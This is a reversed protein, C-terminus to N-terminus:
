QGINVVIGEVSNQDCLRKLVSASQYGFVCFDRKIRAHNSNPLSNSQGRRRLERTPIKTPVAASGEKYKSDAYFGELARKCLRQATEM